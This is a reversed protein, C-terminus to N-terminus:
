KAYNPQKRNLDRQAILFLGILAKYAVVSAAATIVDDEM